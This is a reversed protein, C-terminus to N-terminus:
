TNRCAGPGRVRAPLCSRIAAGLLLAAGIGPLGMMFLRDMAPVTALYM